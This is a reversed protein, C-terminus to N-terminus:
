LSSQSAVEGEQVPLRSMRRLAGEMQAVAKGSDEPYALETVKTRRRQWRRLLQGRAAGGGAEARAAESGCRGSGRRTRRSSGLACITSRPGPRDAMPWVIDRRPAM